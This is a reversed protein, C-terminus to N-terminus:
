SNSLRVDLDAGGEFSHLGACVMANVYLLTVQYFRASAYYVRVAGSPDYNANGQQLATRWASTANANIVVTVWCEQGIIDNRVSELGDPYADANRINWGLHPASSGLQQQQEVAQRMPANLVSGADNDFTVFDVRLNKLNAELKYTSGWFISLCVWLWCTIFTYVFAGKQRGEAGSCPMM